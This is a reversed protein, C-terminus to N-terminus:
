PWNQKNSKHEKYLFLFKPGRRYINQWAFYTVTKLDTIVTIIFIFKSNLKLETLM